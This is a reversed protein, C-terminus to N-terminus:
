GSAEDLRGRIDRILRSFIESLATGFAAVSSQVSQDAATAGAKYEKVLLPVDKGAQRVNFELAVRVETSGPGLVRDLRLIRGYVSLGASAWPVDTVLPAADAHRLYDELRLQLMKSPSDLWFSYHHQLVVTPTSRDSYAIARDQYIGDATFREVFIAGQRLLRTQSTAGEDPLRYYRDEPVPPASSCASIVLVLVTLALTTPKM